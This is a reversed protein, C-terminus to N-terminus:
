WPMEEGKWSLFKGSDEASLGRAVAMMGEVSERAELPPKVTGGRSGMDTNVWGPDMAVIAVGPKARRLEAAACATAMNLAAKSTRYIIDQTLTNFGGGMVRAISGLGSSVNVVKADEALHPLVCELVRTAGCVNVDLAVRWADYDVGGLACDRGPAVGANNFLVSVKSGAADLEALRDRLAGFTSADAVDLRVLDFDPDADDPLVAAQGSPSPRGVDRMCSVVRHAGGARFQAVLEAGLGRSTGTVVVVPKASEHPDSPPPM